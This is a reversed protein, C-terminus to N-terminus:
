YELASYLFTVVMDEKPSKIWALGGRFAKTSTSVLKIM